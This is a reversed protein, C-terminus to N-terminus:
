GLGPHGALDLSRRWLEARAAPDYAQANARAARTRDDGFDIPHQGLSAVNVVRAPADTM